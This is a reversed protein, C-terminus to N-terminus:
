MGCDLFDIWVKAHTIDKFYSCGALTVNLNPSGDVTFKYSTPAYLSRLMPLEIDVLKPLFNLRIAPFTSNLSIIKQVNSFASLDEIEMNWLDINGYIKRIQQFKKLEMDSFIGGKYYLLGLIATCNEHIKSIDDTISNFKCIHPPLDETPYFGNVQDVDMNSAAFVEVEDFSIQLIRNSSIELQKM